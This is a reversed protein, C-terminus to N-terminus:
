PRSGSGSGSPASRCRSFDPFKCGVWIGIFIVALVTVILVGWLILNTMMMGKAFASTKKKFTRSNEALSASKDKIEEIKDLNQMIKEVNEIMQGKVKYTEHELHLLPNYTKSPEMWKKKMGSLITSMANLNGEREKQLYEKKMDTICGFTAMLNFDETTVCIFTVGRRTQEWNYRIRDQDVKDKYDQPALKPLIKYKITEKMTKQGTPFENV